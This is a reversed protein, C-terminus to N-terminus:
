EGYKLILFGRSINSLDLFIHVKILHIYDRLFSFMVIETNPVFNILHVDLIQKDVYLVSCIIFFLECIIM